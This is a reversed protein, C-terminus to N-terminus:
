TTEGGDDGPDSGEPTGQNSRPFHRAEVGALSAMLIEDGDLQARDVARRVAVRMRNMALYRVKSATTDEGQERSREALAAIFPAEARELREWAAAASVSELLGLHPSLDTRFESAAMSLNPQRIFSVAVNKSILGSLHSLGSDERLAVVVRGRLDAYARRLEAECVDLEGQAVRTEGLEREYDANALALDTMAVDLEAVARAFGPQAAHLAAASKLLVLLADGVQLLIAPSADKVDIWGVLCRWAWGPARLKGWVGGL